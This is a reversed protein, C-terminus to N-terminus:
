VTRETERYRLLVGVGQCRDLYDGSEVIEIAANQQIARAVFAERLDIPRLEAGDYSCKDRQGARLIGCNPCEGGHGAFDRQMLLM